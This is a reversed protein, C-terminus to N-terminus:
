PLVRFISHAPHKGRGMRNKPVRETEPQYAHGFTRHEERESTHTSVKVSYFMQEIITGHTSGVARIDSNSGREFRM